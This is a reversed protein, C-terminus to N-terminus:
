ILGAEYMSIEEKTKELTLFARSDIKNRVYLKQVEEEINIGEKICYQEMLYALKQKLKNNFEKETEVKENQFKSLVCAYLVWDACSDFLTDEMEKDYDIKKILLKVTLDQYKNKSIWAIKAEPIAINM